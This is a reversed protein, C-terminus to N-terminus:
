YCYDSTKGSQWDGSPLAKFRTADTSSLLDLWCLGHADEYKGVGRHKSQWDHDHSIDNPIWREYVGFDFSTNPTNFTDADPGHHLGVATAIVEGAKVSVQPRVAHTKVTGGTLPPLVDVLAQFKPTLTLLHGFMLDLGCDTHFELTYQKEGSFIGGGAAFLTTDIPARVVVEDNKLGDFRFGGHPKYDGGREQGPYLIATVESVTVPSQLTPCTHKRDFLVFSTFGNRKIGYSIVLSVLLM